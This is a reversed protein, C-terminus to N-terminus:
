ADLQRLQLRVRAIRSRVTGVPIGLVCATEEYTLCDDFVRELIVRTDENLRECVVHMRRLMERHECVRAPDSGGEVAISEVESDHDVVDRVRGRKYHNRILNMAIGFIWTEPRSQGRYRDLGKLAEVMTDQVIDEVDSPNGVRRRVFSHLRANQARVLQEFERRGLPQAEPACPQPPVAAERAAAEQAAALAAVALVDAAEDGFAADDADDHEGDHDFAHRHGARALADDDIIAEDATTAHDHM